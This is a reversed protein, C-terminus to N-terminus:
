FNYQAVVINNGRFMDLGASRLALMVDVTKEENFCCVVLYDNEIWCDKVNNRFYTFLDNKIDWYTKQKKM